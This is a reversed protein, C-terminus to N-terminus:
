SEAIERVESTADITTSRGSHSRKPQSPGFQYGAERDMLDVSARSEDRRQEQARSLAAKDDDHDDHEDAALSAPYDVNRTDFALAPQLPTELDAVQAERKSPVAAAVTPATDDARALRPDPGGSVAIAAADPTPITSVLNVNSLALLLFAALPTM